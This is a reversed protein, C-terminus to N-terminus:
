HNHEYEIAERKFEKRPMMMLRMMEEWDAGSEHLDCIDNVDCYNCHQKDPTKLLELKGTKVLAIEKLEAAVRQRTFQREVEGKYVMQRKFFPSPQVKSVSGDQNLYKGEENQPRRDRIGKRLFNFEIGQFPTDPTVIGYKILADLGYTWYGSAQDDRSLYATQIQKTSKHDRMWIAGTGRHRLVNDLVGVYTGIQKGTVSDLVPAEFKIESAIVAWEDDAGYFEVYHELMDVGLEAADHWVGDEDKFGMKRASELEEEYAREFTDAPHPGRKLGGNASTYYQELATHILTGFRLPTAAVKPELKRMYRFHWQFRCRKFSSRMSASIYPFM